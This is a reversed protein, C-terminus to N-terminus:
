RRIGYEHGCARCSWQAPQEPLVCGGFVIDTGDYENISPLGWVVPRPEAAGCRPCAPAVEAM